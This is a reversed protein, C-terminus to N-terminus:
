PQAPSVVAQSRDRDQALLEEMRARAVSAGQANTHVGDDTLRAALGGAEERLVDTMEVYTVASSTQEQVTASLAACLRRFAELREQLTGVVPYEPVVPCTSSPPPPAVFVVRRAGMRRAVALSERVYADVFGLDSERGALHCRVDIEGAVFFVSLSSRRAPRRVLPATRGVASPFGNTGLSYMLRPGLHWVYRDSAAKRLAGGAGLGNLHLAHSDGLWLEVESRRVAILLGGLTRADQRRRDLWALRRTLRRLSGYRRQPAVTSTESKHGHTVNLWM